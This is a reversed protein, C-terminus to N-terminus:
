QCKSLWSVLTQGVQQLSASSLKDITDQTTHWYPYDFDIIDIAPIGARLFPTHDDLMSYKPQDIFGTMGLHAAANWIADTLAQDSNVERYITLDADGVMDVVVVGAPPVELHAALYNSGVIWDWGSLEGSDEGDVFALRVACGAKPPQLVRAIELLVAVGSAGDNAGPVPPALKGEPQQDAHPRTDYHAVLMIDSPDAQRQGGLINTLPINRYTFQQTTVSWGSAALTAQIWTQAAQHGQSGPIRPGMGMQAAVLKMASEGSFSAGEGPFPSPRPAPAPVPTCAISMVICFAMLSFIRTAKPLKDLFQFTYEKPM